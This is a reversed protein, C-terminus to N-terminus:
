RRRAGGERTGSAGSERRIEDRVGSTDSRANSNVTRAPRAVMGGNAQFCTSGPLHQLVAGPDPCVVSLATMCRLTSDIWVGPLPTYGCGRARETAGIGCRRVRDADQRVLGEADLPEDHM